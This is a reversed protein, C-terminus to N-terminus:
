INNEVATPSGGNKRPAHGNKAIRFATCAALISDPNLSCKRKLKGAVLSRIRIAHM